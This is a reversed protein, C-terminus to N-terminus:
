DEWATQKTAHDYESLETEDTCGCGHTEEEDLLEAEHENFNDDM